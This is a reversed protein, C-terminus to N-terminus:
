IHPQCTRVALCKNKVLQVLVDNSVVVVCEPRTVEGHFMNPRQSAFNKAYFLKTTEISLVIVPSWSCNCFVCYKVFSCLHRACM